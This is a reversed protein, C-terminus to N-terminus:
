WPKKPGWPQQQQPAYPQSGPPFSNFQPMPMAPTPSAELPIHWNPDVGNFQEENVEGVFRSAAAEGEGQPEDQVGGKQALYHLIPSVATTFFISAGQLQPHMMWILLILKWLNYFPVVLWLPVITEAVIIFGFAVWYAMWREYKDAAKTDLARMSMWLPYIIGLLTVIQSVGLIAIIVLAILSCIGLSVSKRSTGEDFPTANGVYRDAVLAIHEALPRVILLIREM